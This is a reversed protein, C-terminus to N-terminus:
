YNITMSRFCITRLLLLLREKDGDSENVGGNACTVGSVGFFTFDDDIDLLELLEVLFRLRRDM